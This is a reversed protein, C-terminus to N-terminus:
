VSALHPRFTTKETGCDPCQWAAALDSFRTGPSIGTLPLGKAEDYVFYCGKCIFADRGTAPAVAVAIPMRTTPAGLLGARDGVALVADTRAVLYIGLDKHGFAKRLSGPIDLDRRGTAPDVNTAGCRGNRRDVRFIADGV